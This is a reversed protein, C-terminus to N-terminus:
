GSPNRAKEMPRGVVRVHNGRRTVDTLQYGDPVATLDGSDPSWMHPTSPLYSTVQDVVGAAQLSHAHESAGHILVSRAGAESLAGLTRAANGSPWDLPTRFVESGHGGPTGEEIGGNECIVLDYSDRLAMMEDFAAGRGGDSVPLGDPDALYVWTVYPRGSKLAALWPGLVILAESELINTEVHVGAGRLLAAGGEGRSTPDMVAVLVRAVNADILAKRCPPTRGYHNCPELTVLATGGDARKGAATLAHVEAHPDGKRVHYGEGVTRGESDLIVCGVPPNPSASGLGQASIAIARRMAALERANAM